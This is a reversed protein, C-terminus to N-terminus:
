KTDGSREDLIAAIRDLRNWALYAHNETEAGIRDLLANATRLKFEAEFAIEHLRKKDADAREARERQESSATDLAAAIIRLSKDPFFHGKEMFPKVADRARAAADEDPTWNTSVLRAYEECLMLDTYPSKLAAANIRARELRATTHDTM